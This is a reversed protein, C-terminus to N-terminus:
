ARRCSSWIRAGVLQAIRASRSQLPQEGRYLNDKKKRNDTKGGTKKGESRAIYHPVGEERMEHKVVKYKSTACIRCNKKERWIRAGVRHTARACCSQLPQEGHYMMNQPILTYTYLPRWLPNRSLKKQFHQFLM